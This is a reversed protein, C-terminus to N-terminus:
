AAAAGVHNGNILNLELYKEWGRSAPYNKNIFNEMLNGFKGHSINKGLSEPVPGLQRNLIM